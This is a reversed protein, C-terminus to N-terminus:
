TGVGLTLDQGPCRVEINAKMMAFTGKLTKSSYWAIHPSLVLNPITPDLEGGALQGNKLAKALAAENIIGGRGVNVIFATPNMTALEADSVMNKTSADLPAVVIFVTGQKLAEYFNTRGERCTTADKREAILVRMGLAKAIREVNKGLAGYGVVVLTEEANTRPPRPIEAQPARIASWVQAEMTLQHLPMIHRRLAYCLAFAHESVSDTNQAPVHCLAAGMQQLAVKDVFDTGTGNCAVLKLNPANLIGERTVPTASTCVITADAIRGPLDDPSTRDYQRFDYDFGEFTPYKVWGDIAVIVHKAPM